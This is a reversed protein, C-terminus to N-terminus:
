EKVIKINDIMYDSIIKCIYVGNPLISLDVNKIEKVESRESFVIKGFVDYIYISFYKNSYDKFQITFKGNNPNPYLSLNVENNIKAINSIVMSISDSVANSTNYYTGSPTTELVVAKVQYWNLGNNPNLDAYSSNTVM